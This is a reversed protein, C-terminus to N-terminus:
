RGLISDLFKQKRIANETKLSSPLKVEMDDISVNPMGQPRFASNFYNSTNSHMKILDNYQNTNYLQTLNRQQALYKEEEISSLIKWGNDLFEYLGMEDPYQEKYQASVRYHLQQQPNAPKVNNFRRYIEHNMLKNTIAAEYQEQTFQQQQQYQPDYLNSLKDESIEEGTVKCASRSLRKMMDSQQRQEELRQAYQIEQQKAAIYPNYYNNYTNNYYGGMNGMNNYGTNGIGIVNGIPNPPICQQMGGGYMINNTVPSNMNMM